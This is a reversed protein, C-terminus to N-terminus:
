DWNHFKLKYKNTIKNRQKFYYKEAIQKWLKTRRFQPLKCNSKVKQLGYSTVLYSCWWDTTSLLMHLKQSLFAAIWCFTTCSKTLESINTSAPIPDSTNVVMRSIDSRFFPLSSSNPMSLNIGLWHRPLIFFFLANLFQCLRNFIIM